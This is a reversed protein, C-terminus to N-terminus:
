RSSQYYNKCPISYRVLTFDPTIDDQNSISWTGEKKWVKAPVCNTVNFSSAQMVIADSPIENERGPAILVEYIDRNGFRYPLRSPQTSLDPHISPYVQGNTPERRYIGESDAYYNNPLTVTGLIKEVYDLLRQIFPAKQKFKYEDM